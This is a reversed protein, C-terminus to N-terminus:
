EHRGPHGGADLTELSWSAFMAAASKWYEDVAARGVARQGGGIIAAGDTYFSAVAAPDRTFAAVMQANRAAAKQKLAPPPAADTM